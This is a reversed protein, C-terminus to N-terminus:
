ASYRGVVTCSRPALDDDTQGPLWNRFDVAAPVSLLPNEAGDALELILTFVPGDTERLAIYQMNPPAAAHVAAFLAEIQETVASSQEPSTVFRITQLSM